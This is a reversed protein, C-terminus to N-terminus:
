KDCCQLNHTDPLLEEGEEGQLQLDELPLEDRDKPADAQSWGRPYGWGPSEPLADTIILVNLPFTFTQM